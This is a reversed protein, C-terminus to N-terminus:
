LEKIDRKLVRSVATPNWLKGRSTTHGYRNLKNSIAQLSDGLERLDYALNYVIKAKDDALAKRIENSKTTGPTTDCKKARGNFKVKGDRTKEHSSKSMERIRVRELASKTRIGILEREREAVAFIITLTFKDTNPCDCCVLKENLRKYTTLADVVDRSLRDAKAVILTCDNDICYNLAEELIKRKTLNKGSAVETFEKVVEGGTAFHHVIDKQSELGLGSEGQQKTSVRYYSVYKIM